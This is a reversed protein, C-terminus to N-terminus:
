NIEQNIMYKMQFIQNLRIINILQNIEMKILYIKPHVVEMMKRIYEMQNKVKKFMDQLMHLIQRQKELYEMLKIEIKIMYIKLKFLRDLILINEIQNEGNKNFIDSTLKKYSDDKPFEMKIMFIKMHNM